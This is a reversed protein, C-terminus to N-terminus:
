DGKLYLEDVAKLYQIRPYLGEQLLCSHEEFWSYPISKASPDELKQIMELSDVLYTKSMSTFRIIFFGIGGHRSVGKLHEIQHPQVLYKPFSTKHQTEKAEFDIYRGKYIGNYDTTSPTRYYAETIKARGRKPYDVKVIQVPTPKKYILAINLDKYYQNSANLDDELRFGRRSHNDTRSPPKSRVIGNPYRIEKM